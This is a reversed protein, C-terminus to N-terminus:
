RPDPHYLGGCSREARVGCAACVVDGHAPSFVFHNASTTVPHNEGRHACTGPSQRYTPAYTM